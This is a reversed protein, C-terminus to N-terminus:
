DTRQYQFVGDPQFIVPFQNGVDGKPLGVPAFQVGGFLADPTIDPTVEDGPLRLVVFVCRHCYSHPSAALVGPLRERRGQSILHNVFLGDAMLEPVDLGPGEMMPWDSRVTT